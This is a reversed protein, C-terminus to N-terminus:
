QVTLEKSFPSDYTYNQSEESSSWYLPKQVRLDFLTCSTLIHTKGEKTIFLLDESYYLISSAQKVM